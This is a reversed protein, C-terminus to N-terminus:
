FHIRHSRLTRVERSTMEEGFREPGVRPPYRERVGLVCQAKGGSVMPATAALLAKSAEICALSSQVVADHRCPNRLPPDAM